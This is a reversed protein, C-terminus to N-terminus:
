SNGSHALAVDTTSANKAVRPRREELGPEVAGNRSRKRRVEVFNTRGGFSALEVGYRLFM